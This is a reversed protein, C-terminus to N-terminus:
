VAVYKEGDQTVVGMGMTIKVAFRTVAKSEALNSKGGKEVYLDDAAQAIGDLTLAKKKALIEGCAEGRSYAKSEKKEKVIKEKKEKLPKEAKETKPKEKKEGKALKEEPHEAKKEKKKPKEEEVEPEVEETEEEEEDSGEVGGEDEDTEEESGEEDEESEDEKILAMYMVVTDGGLEKKLKADDVNIFGKKGKLKKVSDVAEVLAEAIDVKTKKEKLDIIILEEDEDYFNKENVYKAAEKLQKISFQEVKQEM